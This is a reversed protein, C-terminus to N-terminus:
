IFLSKFLFTSFSIPFQESFFATQNKVVYKLFFQLFFINWTYQDNLIQFVYFARTKLYVNLSFLGFILSNPSSIIPLNIKIRNFFTFYSFSYKDITSTLKISAICFIVIFHNEKTFINPNSHIRHKYTCRM